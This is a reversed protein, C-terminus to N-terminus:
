SKRRILKVNQFIKGSIKTRIKKLYKFTPKILYALFILIFIGILIEDPVNITLGAWALLYYRPFRGITLSALYRWLPYRVSFAFFKFVFFPIPTFGAIILTIFPYKNFYKISVQYFRKNKYGIIKRYNLVPVFIQFDIYGAVITGLTASLSLLFLDLYQGCFILVPEHPFISIATNSPISYFFVYIFSRYQKQVAIFYLNILGILILIFSFFYVKFSLKDYIFLQNQNSEVGIGKM